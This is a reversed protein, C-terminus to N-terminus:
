KLAGGFVDNHSRLCGTWRRIGTVIKIIHADRLAALRRMYAKREIM